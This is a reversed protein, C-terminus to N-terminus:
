PKRRDVISVLAAAVVVFAVLHAAVLMGDIQEPTLNLIIETM